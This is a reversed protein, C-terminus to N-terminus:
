KAGLRIGLLHCARVIAVASYFLPPLNIVAKIIRYKIGPYERSSLDRMPLYKKQRLEQYAGRVYKFKLHPSLLRLCLFLIYSDRRSKLRVLLAATAERGSLAILSTFDDVVLMLSQAAKLLHEPNRSKTVSLANRFYVYAMVECHAIRKSSLFVNPTFIADEVLIRGVPFKINNETLLHRRVLYHWVTNYYNRGAVYERGSMVLSLKQTPSFALEGPDEDQNVEKLSFTLVDLNEKYVHSLLFNAAGTFLYDDADVFWIYEGCASEIGANRAISVGRNPQNIIRIEPRNEQLGQIVSLTEDSSGDNIIIVEFDAGSLGQNYISDICRTIYHQANYAPIIFSLRPTRM